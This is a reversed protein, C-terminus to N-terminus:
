LEEGIIRGLLFWAESKHKDLYAAEHLGAITLVGLRNIAQICRSEADPFMEKFTQSILAASFRHSPLKGAPTGSEWRSMWQHKSYAVAILQGKVSVHDKKLREILRESENDSM